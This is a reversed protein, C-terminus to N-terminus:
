SADLKEGNGAHHCRQCREVELWKDIQEANPHDVLVDRVAKQEHGDHAIEHPRTLRSPSSRPVAPTSNKTM